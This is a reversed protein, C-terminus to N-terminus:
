DAENSAQAAPTVAGMRLENRFAWLAVVLGVAILAASVHLTDQMAPVQVPIPASSPGGPVLRGGNHHIARAAWIAGMISIGVTQGLTRTM